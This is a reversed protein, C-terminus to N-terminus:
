RLSAALSVKAPTAGRTTAMAWLQERETRNFVALWAGAVFIATACAASSILWPYSPRLGWASIAIVLAILGACRLSTEGLFRMYKGYSIGTAKCIWFPQAVVRVIFAAILTGLAVGFVGLPRALLVSIALNLLGEGCNLYTYFRHKFTAYLLAISPSQSVDLLVALSLAVLPWYADQYGPGMWRTIFPKGWFILSLCIFSSLCLSIRTAFFLVKELNENDQAGFLRSMVPQVIGVVALVIDIYYRMFVSAVRYHTVAVLGIFAAIVVSDVQFRFIDGIVSLFTYISYSFFGAIRKRNSPLRDIRVWSACRRAFFIQLAIVPLSALLTVWALSLLGGGERIAMVILVTRLVVGLIGLGAQVDFKLQAELIGAYARAPFWLAVNVGLIAIVKSFLVTDTPDHSLWPAAVVIAGTALLAIGGILLQIRLATNFVASCETTDNQGIAISMYQSVASSLGFDLLGYYGIFTAALTWFGYLRDGLHHVIFPMLFLSTSAAVFLNVLRLLSGPLLKRGMAILSGNTM